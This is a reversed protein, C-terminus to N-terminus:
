LKTLNLSFLNIRIFYYINLLSKNNLTEWIMSFFLSLSIKLTKGTLSISIFYICTYTFFTLSSTNDRYIQCATPVNNCLNNVFQLYKEIVVVVEFCTCLYVLGYFILFFEFDLIIWKTVLPVDQHKLNYYFSSFSMCIKFNYKNM